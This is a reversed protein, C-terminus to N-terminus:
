LAILSFALCYFGGVGIVLMIPDEAPPIIAKAAEVSM